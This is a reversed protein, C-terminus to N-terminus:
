GSPDPGTIVIGGAAQLLAEAIELWEEELGTTAPAKGARRYWYEANGPDGEVRHLYAHVWAGEAREDQQARKHAREWDGKKAWWLAELAPDLAAPPAPAATSESFKTVDM